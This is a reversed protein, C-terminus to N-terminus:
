WGLTTKCGMFPSKKEQKEKPVTESEALSKNDHFTPM